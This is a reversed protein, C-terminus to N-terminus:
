RRLTALRAAPGSVVSVRRQFPVAAVGPASGKQQGSPWSGLWLRGLARRTAMETRGM